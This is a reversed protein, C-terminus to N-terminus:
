SSMRLATMTTPRGTARLAADLAPSDLAIRVMDTVLEDAPAALVYTRGCRAAAQCRAHLRLADKRRGNPRGMLTAGCHSCALIGTLLCRRPVVPTLRRDPHLLLARLRTTEEPAIIGPWQAAGVIEGVLKRKTEIRSRPQHDRQGSIRGSVLMRKLTQATWQKGTATPVERSNLDRAVSRVPEGALISPRVAPHDRRRAEDITLRDAEYGYPRIGVVLCRAQRLWNLPKAGSANQRTSVRTALGPAWREAVARGAPTSLDVPGAKM